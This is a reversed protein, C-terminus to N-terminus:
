GKMCYRIERDVTQAASSTFLIWKCTAAASGQTSDFALWTNVAFGSAIQVATADALQLADFSAKQATTLVAATQLNDSDFGDLGGDFCEIVLNAADWGDVNVQLLNYGGMLLAKDAHQDDESQDITVSDCHVASGVPAATGRRFAPGEERKSLANTPAFLACMLGLALFRKM